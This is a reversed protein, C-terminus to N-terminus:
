KIFYNTFHATKDDDVKFSAPAPTYGLALLKNQGMQHYPLLDVRKVYSLRSVFDAISSIDADTDNFGGILPIRVIIDKGNENLKLINEIILQNSVGTMSQHKAKDMTKIDYLFVDTYPLIRKFCNWSVNGATDIAVPIHRKKCQQCLKELFDIQLMCEGGSFTVGGGSTRYFEEDQLIVSIVEGITYERGCITRANDFCAETCKGCATCLNYDTLVFPEAHKIANQPCADICRGCGTCKSKYYLLQNEREWSEPNHCWKCQMNCGKFFVVTRIGPGDVFSNRQIDFIRGKM